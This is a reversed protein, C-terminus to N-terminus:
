QAHGKAAHAVADGGNRTQRHRQHQKRQVQLRAGQHRARRWDGQRRQQVLDGREVARLGVALAQPQAGPQRGAVAHHLGVRMQQALREDVQRVVRQAVRWAAAHQQAHPPAARM